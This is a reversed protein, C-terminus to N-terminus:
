QRVAGGGAGPRQEHAGRGPSRPLRAEVARLCVVLMPDLSANAEVMRALFSSGKVLYTPLSPDECSHSSNKSVVPRCQVLWSSGSRLTRQGPESLSEPIRSWNSHRDRVVTLVDLERLHYYLVRLGQSCERSALIIYGAGLLM